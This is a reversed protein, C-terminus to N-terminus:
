GGLLAALVSRGDKTLTLRDSADREILGRVLMATATAGTVGAEAWETGSAVCFLLVRQPVTLEGAVAAAPESRINPMPQKETVEVAIIEFALPPGDAIQKMRMIKAKVKEDGDPADIAQNLTPPAQLSLATEVVEGTTRKLKIKCEIMSTM